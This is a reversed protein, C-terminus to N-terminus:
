ASYYPSVLSVSVQILFLFPFPILNALSRWLGGLFELIDQGAWYVGLRPFVLRLYGHVCLM